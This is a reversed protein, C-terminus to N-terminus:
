SECERSVGRLSIDSHYGLLSFEEDSIPSGNINLIDGRDAKIYLDLPFKLSYSHEQGEFIRINDKLHVRIGLPLFIFTNFFAALM